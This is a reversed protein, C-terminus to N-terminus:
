FAVESLSYYALMEGMSDGLLIQTRASLQKGSSRRVLTFGAQRCLRAVTEFREPHRPVLVLLLDPMERLCTQHAALVRAEEGDRTSGAVRVPRRREVQGALQLARSPLESPLDIDFKISGTVRLQ